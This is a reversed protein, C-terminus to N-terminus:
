RSFSFSLSLSLFLCFCFLNAYKMGICSRTGKSFPVFYQEMDKSDPQLWRDPNFVSADPGWISTSFHMTHASM